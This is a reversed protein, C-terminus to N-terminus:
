GQLLKTGANYRRQNAGEVPSDVESRDFRTFENLAYAKKQRPRAVAGANQACRKTRLNKRNKSLLAFQM